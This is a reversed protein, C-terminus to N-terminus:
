ELINESAETCEFHELDKPGCVGVCQCSLGKKVQQWDLPERIFKM